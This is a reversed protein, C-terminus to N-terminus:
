SVALPILQVIISVVRLPYTFTITYYKIERAHYRAEEFYLEYM